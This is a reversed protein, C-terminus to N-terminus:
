ELPTWEKMGYHYISPNDQGSQFYMWNSSNVINSPFIVMRRCGCGGMKQLTTGVMPTSPLLSNFIMFFKSKELNALAEKTM